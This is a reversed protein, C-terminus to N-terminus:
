HTEGEFTMSGGSSALLSRLVGLGKSTRMRETRAPLKNHTTLGRRLADDLAEELTDRSVISAMDILTRSGTGWAMTAAM